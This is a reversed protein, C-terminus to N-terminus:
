FSVSISPVQIKSLIFRKWRLFGTIVERYSCIKNGSLSLTITLFHIEVLLFTICKNPSMLKTENLQSGLDQLFAALYDYVAQCKDKSNGSILFEDLYVLILDCDWRIM